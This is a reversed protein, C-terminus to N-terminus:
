WLVRNAGIRLTVTKGKTTLRFAGLLLDGASTWDDLAGFARPIVTAALWKSPKGAKLRTTLGNMYVADGAMWLSGPMNCNGVWGPLLATSTWAGLIKNANRDFPAVHLQASASCLPGTALAIWKDSVAVRWPRLFTLEYTPQGAKEAQLAKRAAASLFFPLERKQLKDAADAAFCVRVLEDGEQKVLCAHRSGTLKANDGHALTVSLGTDALTVKGDASPKGALVTHATPGSKSSFVPNAPRRLAILHEGSPLLGVLGADTSGAEDIITVDTATMNASLSVHMLRHHISGKGGTAATPGMTSSFLAYVHLGVRAIRATANPVPVDVLGTWCGM